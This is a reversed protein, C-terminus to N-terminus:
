LGWNIINKKRIDMYQGGEGLSLDIVYIWNETENVYMCPEFVDTDTHICILLDSVSEVGEGDVFNNEVLYKDMDLIREKINM